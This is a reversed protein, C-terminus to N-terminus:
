QLVDSEKIKDDYKSMINKELNEITTQFLPLLPEIYSDIDDFMEWYPNRGNLLKKCGDKGLILDYNAMQKKYYENLLKIKQEENVSMLKKGKHDQKKDIIKFQNKLYLKERKYNEFMEEYKFPLSIDNFDFELFEGTDKGQEDKIGIKVYGDRKKLKIEM